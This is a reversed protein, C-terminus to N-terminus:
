VKDTVRIRTTELEGLESFELFVQYNEFVVAVVQVERGDIWVLGEEQDMNELEVKVM